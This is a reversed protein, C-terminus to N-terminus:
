EDDEETFSSPRYARESKPAQFAAPPRNYDVLPIDQPRQPLAQQAATPLTNALGDGPLVEARAFKMTVLTLIIGLLLGCLGATLGRNYGTNYDNENM